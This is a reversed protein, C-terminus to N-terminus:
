GGGTGGINGGEYVRTASCYWVAPTPILFVYSLTILNCLVFLVVLSVHPELTRLNTTHARLNQVSCVNELISRRTGVLIDSPNICQVHALV